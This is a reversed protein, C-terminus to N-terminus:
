VMPVCPSSAGHPRPMPVWLLSADGGAGHGRTGGPERHLRQQLLVSSLGDVVGGLLEDVEGGDELLDEAVAEFTCCPGGRGGGGM